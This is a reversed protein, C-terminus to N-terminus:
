IAEDMFFMFRPDHSYLTYDNTPAQSYLRIPFYIIVEPPLGLALRIENPRHQHDTYTYPLWFTIKHKGAPGIFYKSLSVPYIMYEREVLQGFLVGGYM